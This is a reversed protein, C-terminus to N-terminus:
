NSDCINRLHRPPWALSFDHQELTLNPNYFPDNVLIDGWIKKMYHAERMLRQMKEPADHDHGRTASEHHYLEAYPTWINRYGAKGLRLCFDIDNFAVQLDSENLGGVEEYINKRILLCAGTVASVTQILSARCFYGNQYRPLNKHAHNAVGGFGLIVGGHQLTNDPYWLRAGVAGVDPQSALSVMEALWDPAIVEIDNNVLCIFEGFAAKVASNNLASYNFPRDDRLIRVKSNLKINSFYELTLPDDSGNDIIIIEYNQYTTKALISEVCQQILECGNRTPIILSVLPPREPLAYHVRFGQNTIEVEAQMGLRKFHENLAKQGALMAYPKNDYDKATSQNHIRWHYLARPIHYIQRAEIHEICRLALDYDQSGIMEDSFGGTKQLLSSSYVGLHSILNHSYFLDLNWDSKFHPESRKGKENIKDEDSYILKVDPNHNIADAVWFLAQENLRDDHDLLAVWEGTVLELASNSAASIHGNQNRFVVKIRPDVGAYYELIPRINRDTSADDAICLEWYPYIQKVVSDIAEKLWEPRPNYTPLVVSIVPKREMNHIANHLLSRTENSVNDYLRIWEIYNNRDYTSYYREAGYFPKAIIKIRKVKNLLLKVYNGIHRLPVTYRWSSSTLLSNLRYNLQELEAVLKRNQQELERNKSQLDNAM